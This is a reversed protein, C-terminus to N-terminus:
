AVRGFIVTQNGKTEQYAVQKHFMVVMINFIVAPLYPYLFQDYGPRYWTSLLESVRWTQSDPVPTGFDRQLMRELGTKEDEGDKLLGGPLKFFSNGSHFCLIHPM